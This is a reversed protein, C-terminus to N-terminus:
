DHEFLCALLEGWTSHLLKRRFEYKRQKVQVPSCHTVLAPVPGLLCSSLEGALFLQLRRAESGLTAAVKTVEAAQRRDYQLQEDRPRTTAEGM